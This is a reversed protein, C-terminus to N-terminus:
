STSTSLNPASEQPFGNGQREDAGRNMGIDHCAIGAAVIDDSERGVRDALDSTIPQDLV